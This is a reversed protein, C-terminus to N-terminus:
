EISYSGIIVKDKRKLKKMLLVVFLAARIPELTGQWMREAIEPCLTLAAWVMLEFHPDQEFTVSYEFKNGLITNIM